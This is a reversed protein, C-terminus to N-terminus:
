LLVEVGASEGGALGQSVFVLMELGNGMQGM